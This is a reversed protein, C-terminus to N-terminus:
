SKRMEVALAVVLTAGVPFRSLTPAPRTGAWRGAAYTRDLFSMLSECRRVKADKREIKYVITATASKKLSSFYEHWVTM